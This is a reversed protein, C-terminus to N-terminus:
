HQKPDTDQKSVLSVCLKMEKMTSDTQHKMSLYSLLLM